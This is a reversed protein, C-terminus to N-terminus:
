LQIGASDPELTMLILCYFAIMELHCNILVHLIYLLYCETIKYKRLAFCIDPQM